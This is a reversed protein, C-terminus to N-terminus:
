AIIIKKNLNHIRTWSPLSGVYATGKRYNCHCRNTIDRQDTLMIFSNYSKNFIDKDYIIKNFMDKDYIIKCITNCEKASKALYNKCKFLSLLNWGFGEFICKLKMKLSEFLKLFLSVSFPLVNTYITEM